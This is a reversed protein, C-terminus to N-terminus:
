SERTGARNALGLDDLQQHLGDLVHHHITDADATADIVVFRERDTAVEDLFGQRVAEHFALDEQEIRDLEARGRARHLAQEPPLDMLVIRDPLRGAVAPGNVGLVLERGLGRAAGQYALSSHLFRDCLVVQGAQLAPEIRERILQSRSAAFLFMEAEPVMSASSPDLLVERIRDGIATDGPERLRLVDAGRSTLHSELLQIQTSKGSGEIGEFTIFYGGSM